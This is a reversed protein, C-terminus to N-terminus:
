LSHCRDCVVDAISGGCRPHDCTQPAVVLVGNEPMDLASRVVSTLAHALDRMEDGGLRNETYLRSAVARLKDLQATELAVFM